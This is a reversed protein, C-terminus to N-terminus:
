ELNADCLILTDDAYQLHTIALGNKRCEVGKWLRLGTAKRIMLNLAEVVLVFLFPSLPDGQRLGRQLKFPTSPSGNILISASASTVCAMVWTCWQPPFNMQVLIWHLFEWSVSDYAKHFDLKLLTAERGTRKCSEIVESAVLAGDLIQRGEIYSSQLPSILNNMVNQIRRAMLKAIIKFICGVMSIPRFDKFSSPNPTKPILAIYSTNCGRPIHGKAWFNHVIEYIDAKIIEWASKVFKFNFGDPGPAKDSDCSAMAEDIEDNSFPKILNEAQDQSLKNFQLGEFVPREMHEERFIEKFFKVAEKKIRTPSSIKEGEIEISNIANKRRKISAVTHFFNTNRDGEKLWRIRSNQAWYVEKRKMWTWLDIQAKKQLELEQSDLNRKNSLEDFEQITSELCKIKLDINGFENHNWEKLSKKVSKLKELASQNTAANWTSKVINMCKPDSLWCNLFRFPRPGSNRTQSHVYLPCHDSLGRQLLSMKMSPFTTIWEPSVMLRDLISKSNGRFWTFGGSASPIELLHLEQMFNTLNDIGTQSFLQSGRDSAKLTENFDGIILCPHHKSKQFDAIEAWVEARSAVDCPNYLNILSCQFNLSPFSGNIAIWNRTVINSEITFASKDWISLIGGSTGASPSYIWEIDDSKWCTKIIRLNIEEMKTEQIFVFTPDHSSIIKRLSSRKVRPTLGRINWSLISIM